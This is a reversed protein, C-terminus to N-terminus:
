GQAFFGALHPNNVPEKGGYFWSVPLVKLRRGPHIILEARTPHEEYTTYQYDILVRDKTAFVTPYTCRARFGAPAPTVFEAELEPAPQGPADYWEAPRAPRIPGPDVRVADDLSELNQFFEWVSGGNRSVASSLRTRNLGRKVEEENEQNWVVLLHGTSPLTSIHAPTANAALSTPQPRTWTTGDDHSWAQYLRGLGTRIMMLLHGPAAEAVTPENAFSYTANWDLLIILEGDSNRQWTRGDDDSYCVFAVSFRRDFYHVRTSSWQGHALVGAQPFADPDRWRDDQGLMDYVPLILRGSSTRTLVDGSWAHIEIGPPMIRVPAEWTDGQDESRWFVIHDVDDPLDQRWGALGIGRGSLKVLSTAGDGVPEGNADKREFPASWTLAGDGSVFFRRDSARLISGDELELYASGFDPEQLSLLEGPRTMPVNSM